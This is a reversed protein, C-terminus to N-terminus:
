IANLVVGGKEFKFAMNDVVKRKDEETASVKFDLEFLDNIAEWKLTLLQYEGKPLNFNYDLDYIKKDKNIVKVM